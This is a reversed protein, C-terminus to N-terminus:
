IICIDNLQMSVFCTEKEEDARAVIKSRTSCILLSKLASDGSILGCLVDNLAVFFIDSSKRTRMIVFLILSRM